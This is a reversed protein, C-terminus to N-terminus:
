QNKQCLKNIKASRLLPQIEKISFIEELINLASKENRNKMIISQGYITYSGVKYDYKRLSISWINIKINLIKEYKFFYCQKYLDDDDSLYLRDTEKKFGAEILNDIIYNILDIDKKFM